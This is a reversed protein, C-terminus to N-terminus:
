QTSNSSQNNFGSNATKLSNFAAQDFGYDIVHSPNVFAVFQKDFDASPLGAIVWAKKATSYDSPSVYGDTGAVKALQPAVTEYAQQVNQVQQNSPTLSTASKGSNVWQNTANDLKYIYGGVEIPKNADRAGTAIDANVKDIDAQTKVVDLANKQTTQQATDYSSKASKLATLVVDPTTKLANAWDAINQTSLKSIDGNQAQLYAGVASQVATNVADTRGKIEAIKADAGKQAADIRNQALTKAEDSIKTYVGALDQSHKDDIAAQAQSNATNVTDTQATGFDSGLLGRRAEIATNQGVRGQGALTEAQKQNAYVANLADIESQFQNQAATLDDATPTASASYAATRAANADITAQEDANSASYQSPDFLPNAPSSTTVPPNTPTGTGTSNPNAVPNGFIDYGTKGANAPNNGAQLGGSTTNAVPAVTPILKAANAIANQQAITLGGGNQPTFAATLGEQANAASTYPTPTPTATTM